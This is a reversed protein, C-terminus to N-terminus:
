RGWGPRAEERSKDRKMVARIIPEYKAVVKPFEDRYVGKMTQHIDRLKHATEVAKQNM